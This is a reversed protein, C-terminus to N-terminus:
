ESGWSSLHGWCDPAPRRPLGVPGAGCCLRHVRRRCRGHSCRPFRDPPHGLDHVQGHERVDERGTEVPGDRCTDADPGGDINGPGTGHPKGRRGAGLQQPGSTMTPSRFSSRSAWARDKPQSVTLTALPSGASWISCSRPTRSTSAPISATPKSARPCPCPVAALLRRGGHEVRQHVEGGGAPGHANGAKIDCSIRTGRVRRGSPCGTGTGPCRSPM